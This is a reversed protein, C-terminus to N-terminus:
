NYQVINKVSYAFIIWGHMNNIFNDKTATQFNLGNFQSDMNMTARSWNQYQYKYKETVLM